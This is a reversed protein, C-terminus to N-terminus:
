GPRNVEEFVFIVKTITDINFLSSVHNQILLHKNDCLLQWALAYNSASFEVSHTVVAASGALSALLYHLKNMEDMNDNIHILSTFTDRFELYDDYSGSLKPLQITSLKVM